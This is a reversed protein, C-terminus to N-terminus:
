AVERGRLRLARRGDRLLALTTQREFLLLVATYALGFLLLKLVATAWDPTATVAPLAAMAGGLLLAVLLAGTPVAFLRRLSFPILPRALWFLLVMGVLLMIDVALAVGTIGLPTGLAFLGAVLVVLQVLRTQTVQAPKGVAVFLNAVTLKIPDLMTFILMLRFAALMPLWKAGLFLTILEPAALAMGGAVLFGVRVLFGNTREFARGLRERDTELAAYTGTSVANVPQAVLLRPYTAFRYARSYYGLATPGLFVQTWLDDIRDLAQWLMVAAFQQRGFRLFYRVRDAQWSLRPIWVPTVLYFLVINVVATVVDTMLLAGLQAGRWALALALTSGLLVSVSDVVATRRGDVRRQYILRPTQALQELGGALTLVVLALRMPGDTWLWAALLMLAMWALTFLLKLTFHVAAAASEDDTEATRYLFAGGMGFAAAVITIGVIAQAGAYVGFVDVPLWRALLVSRVVLVIMAVLNALAAWKVATVSRNALSM